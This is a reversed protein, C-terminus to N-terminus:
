RINTPNSPLPEVLSVLGQLSGPSGAMRKIEVGNLFVLLTPYARIAYRQVIGAGGPGDGDLKLVRLRGSYRDALQDLLPAMAKCPGCWPAWVDLLVPVQKSAQIVDADFTAATTTGVAGVRNPNTTQEPAFGNGAVPRGIGRSPGGGGPGGAYGYRGM